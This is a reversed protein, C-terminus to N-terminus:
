APALQQLFLMALPECQRGQRREAAEWQQRHALCSIMEGRVPCAAILRQALARMAQADAERECGRAHRLLMCIWTFYQYGVGAPPLSAAHAHLLEHAESYTRMLCAAWGPTIASGCTASGLRRQYIYVARPNVTVPVRSLLMAVVTRMQFIIDEGHTVGPPFRLGHATLFDRRYIAAFICGSWHLPDHLLIREVIGLTEGRGTAGVDLMRVEGVVMAMAPDLAAAALLERAWGREVRDDPDVFGVYTGRAAGLGANRAVSVGGNAQHIVRVRGDRAALADAIAPTEDPSGDDVVIIELGPPADDLLSAVCAELWPAVRYAPLVLSLPAGGATAPPVAASVSSQPM